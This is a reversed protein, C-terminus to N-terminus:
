RTQQREAALSEDITSIVEIAIECFLSPIQSAEVSVGFLDGPVVDPNIIIKGVRRYIREAETVIPGSAGKPQEQLIEVWIFEKKTHEITLKLRKGFQYGWLDDQFLIVMKVKETAMLPERVQIPELWICKLGDIM